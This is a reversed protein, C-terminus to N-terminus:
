KNGCYIIHLVGDNQMAYGIGRGKRREGEGGKGDGGEGRGM